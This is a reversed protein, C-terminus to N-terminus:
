RHGGGTSSPAWVMGPVDMKRRMPKGCTDCVQEDRAAISSIKVITSECDECYQTYQPM